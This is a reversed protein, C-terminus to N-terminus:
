SSLHLLVDSEVALRWGLLEGAVTQGVQVRGPVDVEVFQGEDWDVVGHRNGVPVDLDQGHVLLRVRELVEGGDDLLMLEGDREDGVLADHHWAVQELVRAPGVEDVEDLVGLKLSKLEVDTVLLGGERV